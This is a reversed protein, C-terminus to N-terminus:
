VKRVVPLCDGGRPLIGVRGEPRERLATDLAAQLTPFRRYGMARVEEDTLGDCVFFIEAIESVMRAGSAIAAAVLDTLEAQDAVNESISAAAPLCESGTQAQLGSGTEPAGATEGAPDGAGGCLRRIRRVVEKRPLALWSLLEDHNHALGERCPAAVIMIGGEKVAFYGSIMAKECQWYDDDYPFSASILIEAPEPIEVGFVERSIRAGARHAGVPDGTVLDAVENEPNLIVNVIFRLGAAKAATELSDRFANEMMGLPLYDLVAAATHTASVTAPGCCGPDLIKAGGSFGANPHPIISGLGILLDAEMATRNVEVPIELGGIRVSGLRVLSGAERCDHQRVRFHEMAYAGLKNELEEETLIRHTGPCILVTIEDERVGHSSLYEWLVPLIERVPTHRTNDESLIVIRRRRASATIGAAALGPDVPSLCVAPILEALSPGATPCDLMTRLKEKWLPDAATMKQKGDFLVREGPIEVPVLDKSYPIMIQM